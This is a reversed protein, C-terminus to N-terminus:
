NGGALQYSTLRVRRVLTLDLGVITPGAVPRLGLEASRSLFAPEQRYDVFAIRCGGEGLFSAAAPGELLQTATGLEFPVSAEKFGSVAVAPDACSVLSPLAEAMARAPWLREASPIAGGLITVVLPFLSAVILRFSEQARGKIAAVIAAIALLIAAVAAVSAGIPLTGQFRFLIALVVAALVIPVFANAALLWRTWAGRALGGAAVAGGVLVAVAPLLPMTYHPLKTVAIEFAILSPIIWALCFRVAQEGRNRWIWGLSFAALVSGPWFMTWFLLTHTGPPAAHTEQGGLIKGVLDTGV